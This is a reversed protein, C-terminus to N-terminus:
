LTADIVAAARAQLAPPLDAYAIANCGQSNPWFEARVRQGKRRFIVTCLPRHYGVCHGTRGAYQGRRPGKELATLARLIFTAQDATM